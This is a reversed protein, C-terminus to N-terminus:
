WHEHHLVEDLPRRRVRRFPRAPYGLPITVAIRVEDPLGLLARVGPEAMRHYSTFVSGLGRMRAAVILNQALPYLAAPIWEDSPAAPPYVARGCVLVWVPVQALHAVLHHAGALMRRRVPDGSRPVPPLVPRVAEALLAALRERQARDRVVVLDWGQSNGPSSACTAGELVERLLPEPVPDPRLHRM